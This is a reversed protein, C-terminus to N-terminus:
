FFSIDEGTENKYKEVWERHVDNPILIDKTVEIVLKDGNSAVSKVVYKGDLSILEKEGNEFTDSDGENVLEVNGKALELLGRLSVVGTSNQIYYSFDQVEVDNENCINKVATRIEHPMAVDALIVCEVSYKKIAATINNIGFVVPLGNMMCNMRAERYDVMCVPKAINNGSQELHKIVILGSEGVGVVMINVTATKKFMNVNKSEMRLIRYSFRSLTIFAFQMLAGLVYYSLPMRIFFVLSGVVYLIGTVASACIICNLDKFGAYKWRNSYLKFFYFVILCCITYCPAFKYIADVYQIAMDNLEFAVYYRIYFASIYAFNVKGYKLRWLFVKFLKLCLEAM